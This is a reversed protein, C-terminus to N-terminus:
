GFLLPSSLNAWVQICDSSFAFKRWPLRKNTWDLPALMRIIVSCALSLPATYQKRDQRHRAPSRCTQPNTPRNGRYSSVTNMSRWWVPDTPSPLSWRWSILNRGDREGLFPTQPPAFNKPEAKSCGARLTQTRGLAKKMKPSKGFEHRRVKVMALYRSLLFRWFDGSGSRCGSRVV